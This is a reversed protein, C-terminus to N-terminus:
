GVCLFDFQCYGSSYKPKIFYNLVFVVPLFVWLFIASSFVM